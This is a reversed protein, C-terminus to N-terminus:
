FFAPRDQPTVAGCRDQSDLERGGTVDTWGSYALGANCKDTGAAHMYRIAATM